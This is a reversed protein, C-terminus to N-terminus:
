QKAVQRAATAGRLVPYFQTFVNDNAGHERHCSYCMTKPFAKAKELLKRNEGTFNFYAWGEPFRGKDKVSVDLDVFDGEFYGQRNISVKQAPRYLPMVFMTKEPFTGTRLYQQYAEPQIYVNHFEGPGTQGKDSYNLGISAGVFVWSYFQRPRILAGENDYQPVAMKGTDSGTLTAAFGTIGLLMAIVSTGFLARADSKAIASFGCGRFMRM